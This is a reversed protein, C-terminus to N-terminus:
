YGFDSLLSEGTGPRGRVWGPICVGVHEFDEAFVESAFLRHHGCRITVVCALSSLCILDGKQSM